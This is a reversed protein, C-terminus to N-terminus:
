REYSEKILDLSIGAGVFSLLGIFLNWISFDQSIVIALSLSSGLLWILGFIFKLIDKYM